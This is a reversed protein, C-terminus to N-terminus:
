FFKFPKPLILELERQQQQLATKDQEAEPQAVVAVAWSSSTLQSFGSCKEAWVEALPELLAGTIIKFDASLIDKM